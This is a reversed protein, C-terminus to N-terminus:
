ENFKISEIINTRFAKNKDFNDGDIMFQISYIAGKYIFSYNEVIKKQEQVELVIKIYFLKVNEVSFVKFDETTSFTESILTGKTSNLVGKKIGNFFKNMGKDDSIKSVENIIDFKTYVIIETDYIGRIFKGNAIVGEEANDLVDITLNEDFEYQFVEQSFCNLSFFVIANYIFKLM